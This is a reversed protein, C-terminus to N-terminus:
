QVCLSIIKSAHVSRSTFGSRVGFSQGVKSSVDCSLREYFDALKTTLFRSM